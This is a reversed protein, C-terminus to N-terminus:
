KNYKKAFEFLNYNSYQSMDNLFNFFFDENIIHSPDVYINIYNLNSSSIFLEKCHKLKNRFEEPNKSGSMLFTWSDLIKYLQDPCGTVSLEVLNGLHSVPSNLFIYDYITSSSYYYGLEQIKKYIKKRLKFNIEGFHPARFGKPVYNLKELLVKHGLEIDEFIKNSLTSTYSKTSVAMNDYIETHTFYGHNIFEINYKKTLDKLMDINNEILEGPIALSPKIGIKDLKILLKPLCDIDEQVDCDFSLLFQKKVISKEFFFKKHFIYNPLIKLLLYILARIPNFYIKKILNIM